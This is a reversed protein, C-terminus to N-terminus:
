GRLKAFNLFYFHCNQQGKREFGSIRTIRLQMRGPKMAPNVKGEFPRIKRKNMDCSLFIQSCDQEVCNLM